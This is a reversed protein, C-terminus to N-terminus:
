DNDDSFIKLVSEDDCRIMLYKKGSSKRKVLFDKEWNDVGGKITIDIIPSVAIKTPTKKKITEPVSHFQTDFNKEQPANLLKTKIIQINIEKNQACYTGLLSEIMENYDIEQESQLKQVVANRLIYYDKPSKEKIQQLENEITQLVVKTNYSDSKEEKIELFKETWYKADTNVYAIIYSFIVDNESKIETVSEAKDVTLGMVVSKWVRKNDGPFGLNKILTEGDYWEAHEVKAIIYKYVNENDNIM